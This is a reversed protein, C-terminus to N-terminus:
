ATSFNSMVKRLPSVHKGKPCYQNAFSCILLQLSEWRGQSHQYQLVYYALALDVSSVAWQQWYTKKRVCSWRTHLRNVASDKRIAILCNISQESEATLSERVQQHGTLLWHFFLSQTGLISVDVRMRNSFYCHDLLQLIIDYYRRIM